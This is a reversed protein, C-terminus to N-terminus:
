CSPKPGVQQLSNAWGWGLVKNIDGPNRAAWKEDRVLDRGLAVRGGTGSSSNGTQHCGSDQSLSM